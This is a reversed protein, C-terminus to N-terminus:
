NGGFHRTHTRTCEHVHQRHEHISRISGTYTYVRIYVLTQRSSAYPMFLCYKKLGYLLFTEHVIERKITRVYFYTCVYMCVYIYIYIYAYAHAHTHTHALMVSTNYTHVFFNIYICVCVCVYILRLLIFIISLVHLNIQIYIHIYTHIYTHIHTYAYM